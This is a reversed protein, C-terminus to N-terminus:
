KNRGPPATPKGPPATPKHSAKAPPTATASAPPTRTPPAVTPPSAPSPPVPSSRTPSPGSIPQGPFTIVAEVTSRETPTAPGGSPREGATASASPRGTTVSIFPGSWNAPAGLSGALLAIGIAALFLVVTSSGSWAAAQTRLLRRGSDDVFVPSKASGGKPTPLASGERKGLWGM